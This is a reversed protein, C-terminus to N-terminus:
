RVCNVSSHRGALNVDSLRGSSNVKLYRGTLNINNCSRALNVKYCRILKADNRRRPLTVQYLRGALTVGNHRVAM